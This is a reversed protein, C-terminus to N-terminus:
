GVRRLIASVRSAVIRDAEVKEHPEYTVFQSVKAGCNDCYWPVGREASDAKTMTTTSACRSCITVTCADDSM